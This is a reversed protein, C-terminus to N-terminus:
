QINAQQAFAEALQNIGPRAPAPRQPNIRQKAAPSLPSLSHLPQPPRSQLMLGQVHALANRWLEFPFVGGDPRVRRTTCRTGARTRTAQSAPPPHHHTLKTPRLLNFMAQRLGSCNGARFPCGSQWCGPAGIFNPDAIPRSRSGGPTLGSAGDDEYQEFNQLNPAGRFPANPPLCSHSSCTTFPHMPPPPSLRSPAAVVLSQPQVWGM